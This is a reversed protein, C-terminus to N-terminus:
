DNKLIEEFIRDYSAWCFVKPERRQMDKLLKTIALKLSESDRGDDDLCVFNKYGETAEVLTPNNGVILPVGLSMAHYLRNADCFIQNLSNQKYLVITFCCKKLVRNIQEISLYGAFYIKKPDLNHKEIYNSDIKGAHFVKYGCAIAAKIVEQGYRNDQLSNQLYIFKENESLWDEGVPNLFAEEYVVKEPYNSIIYSYIANTGLKKELYKQRPENAHIIIDAKLYAKKFFYMLLKNKMFWSPPLEHHDWIVISSPKMVKILYVIGFMIPDCVWIKKYNKGLLFFLFNIYFQLIGIIQLFINQTATGGLISIDYIKCGLQEQTMNCNKAVFVDVQAGYKKLSRIEKLVRQDTKLSQTKLVMLVDNM